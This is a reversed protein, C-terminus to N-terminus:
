IEERLRENEQKLANTNQYNSNAFQNRKLQENQYQMSSVEQLLVNHRRMEENLQKKLNSVNESVNQQYFDQSFPSSVRLNDSLDDYVFQNTLPTQQRSYNRSSDAYYPTNYSYM